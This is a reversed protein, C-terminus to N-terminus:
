EDYRLNFVYKHLNPINLCVNLCLYLTMLDSTCTRPKEAVYHGRNMISTINWAGEATSNMNMKLEDISSNYDSSSRRRRQRRWQRQAFVIIYDMVSFTNFTDDGFKYCKGMMVLHLQLVLSMVRFAINKSNHGKKVYYYYTSHYGTVSSSKYRM